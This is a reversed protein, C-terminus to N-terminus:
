RIAGQAPSPCVQRATQFGLAWFCFTSELKCKRYPSSSSIHHILGSKHGNSYGYAAMNKDQLVVHVSVHLPCSCLPDISFTDFLEFLLHSIAIFLEILNQSAVRVESAFPQEEVVFQLGLKHYLDKREVNLAEELLCIHPIV